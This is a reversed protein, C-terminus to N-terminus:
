LWEKYRSIYVKKIIQVIISYLAILLVVYIYYNLPLIVFNFSKINCLVIPTIITGIITVLTLLTLKINASSEIFPIKPTRVFHIILTESILCEVFWATQFYAQNDVSNYKFIFWFIIFALIDTISSTIGMVNMFRSLDNTQWKRPKLLFDKDVNDYPIAIQSIDYLFDQILMQIPLLPLFPLFISAIVISFVDGFDASLAMKMYKIINGYVKRGEIIGNYIVDLSRELLIISSAEKAIDTATNVSIGVDAINLSLADNVGDGMYGVIHGNKKYLKVIREKQLPNLRAFVDVQEILKSLVEDTYNDIESGLLIKESNLNALQCINKTAYQNDGTLIKTSVGIESLKNLIYKVDKKPPDLFAVFGIFTMNNEDDSSFSEDSYEKKEALAIVQMGESALKISNANIKDTLEKTLPKIQNKYNVKTCSKLIEELAGKTLMRYQGNNEVVVSTKRRNYDFPIEDIKNYTLVQDKINHEVGYSIIARDILNKIGTSYYSNLYAYELISIDEDGEVNIYKQLIIENQTLTGTKDTCLLDIAGLNQISEINKVLTKKKSLSRSGKTLNVNVIMPLMSPTIGVAVSLSFLVAETINERFLWNIIFVVISVITMYKILTKIINNMGIEFNTPEKEELGKGMRGLYTNFGTRIVLATASGSVVSSGMLCINSIEFIDNNKKHILKKEVPVSEGTFVAQNIFLDKCDLLIIDAPIIAGANLKVIDGIVVNETREIIEEKDRILNAVSFLQAKLNINFKYVSYDQLFRILASVFAIGIIISTGLTDGLIFNIVALFLLIIIFKDKLSILFFYIWPKKDDKIVINLGNNKKRESAEKKSLGDLSSNYEKYLEKNNLLSTREYEELLNNNENNKQDVEFLRIM